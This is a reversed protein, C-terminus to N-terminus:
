VTVTKVQLEQGTWEETQNKNGPGYGGFGLGATQTGASGMAGRPTALGTPNNTWSTGNWLETAGTATTGPPTSNGGFALAATQIGVGGLSQRATNMSNVSTWSSGNYSETATVRNGVTPLTFTTTGGFALTATQTGCGSLYSRATNMSPLNTWSTGNFAEVAASATLTPFVSTSGGFVIAATNTGACGLRYGRATTLSTVSTWSTGNYSETAGSVAGGANGGVALAATQTGCGSLYSRATNLTAPPVTWSTGNYSLTATNPGLGFGFGLAATQTGAGAGNRMGGAPAPSSVPLNGGSAWSNVTALQYGKLTGSSSNYWIQGEAPAPPDVSVSTIASGLSPSLSTISTLSADAINSAPITGNLGDTGDLKGGTVINNAISRTITGM